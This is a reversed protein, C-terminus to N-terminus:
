SGPLRLSRLAEYVPRVDALPPWGLVATADEVYAPRRMRSSDHSFACFWPM